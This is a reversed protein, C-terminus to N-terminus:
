YYHIITNTYLTYKPSWITYLPSWITYLLTYYHIITYLLTYYHIITYLLTYYHIITYLLTYYHIEAITPPFSTNPHHHPLEEIEFGFWSLLFQHSLKTNRTLYLFIKQAECIILLRCSLSFSNYCFLFSRMRRSRQRDCSFISDRLVMKPVGENGGGKGGKGGWDLTKRIAM